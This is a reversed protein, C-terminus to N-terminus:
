TPTRTTSRRSGSTRPASSPARPLQRQRRDTELRVHRPHLLRLDVQLRRLLRRGHRAQLRRLVRRLLRVGQPQFRRARRLRLGPPAGAQRRVQLRHSEPGQLEPEDSFSPVYESEARLGFNLTLRKAITWSDQLYLAISTSHAEALTGFPSSVGGRVEYYGYQGRYTKTPDNPDTYAQGWNLRVWPYKFSNDIDEHLRVWQVGAKLSHEGAFNPYYNFDLNASARDSIYKNTVYGDATAAYNIWGRARVLDAPIEPYAANTQRFQWLPEAPQVSSTTTTPSSSAARPRQDDPQQGVTYDM